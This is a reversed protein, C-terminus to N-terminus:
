TMSVGQPTGIVIHPQAVKTEIQRQKDTGGVYNVVRIETESHKLLKNQRKYIQTALERSPLLLKFIAVRSQLKEFILYSSSIHKGRVQRKTWGSFWSRFSGSSDIECWTNEYIELGWWAEQIFTKFNFDKFM